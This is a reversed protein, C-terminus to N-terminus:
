SVAYIRAPMVEPDLRVSLRPGPCRVQEGGLLDCLQYPDESSRGLADLPLELVGEQPHSPDLSVVCVILNDGLRKAYALMHANNVRLFRLNRLARLAPNERRIRNVRRFLPQLSSPDDWNWVRIEYKENDAYEERDPHQKHRAHEFPPGYVGYLPSLTAALIYRIIHAARGGRVLYEHLIDPTNPWFNPRFFEALDTQTLEELYSQLEEKTNRWTFYTYSNNFGLQALLYMTKPQCFAEALFILDPHEARLSGLCWRWFAFPKTHPNDVRFIHVGRRIWFLFVNRLEEWLALHDDCTFDLPYIDQYKKPPNEAYRIAGDAHKRFWEPRETVYPHDPSCQFAIDLAVRLGLNDASAVFRDFAEMGGLLEHVSTHGGANSGIAWPSGPEGPKAVPNNDKGKRFTAGIPHVPPLYVIDFGMDKIHALRRAADDLTAHRGAEDASSRPFFEYWAACRALVPDVEMHLPASETSGRQPDCRRALHIIEEDLAQAVDGQEFSVAYGRLREQDHAPAGYAAERLLAAGELLETRLEEEEADGSVRRTFAERWTGYRDVWARVKYTTRGMNEAVFSGVYEDNYRLTLPLVWAGADAHSLHLEVALRDHGDAIVGAVVEVTEGM